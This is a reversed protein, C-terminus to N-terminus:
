EIVEPPPIKPCLTFICNGGASIHHCGNNGVPSVGCFKVTTGNCYRRCAPDIKIPSLPVVEAAFASAPAIPSVPTSPLALLAVAAVALVLLLIRM